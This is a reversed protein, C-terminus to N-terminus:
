LSVLLESFKQISLLDVSAVIRKYSVALFSQVVDYPQILSVSNPLVRLSIRRPQNLAWIWCYNAPLPCASRCEDRWDGTHRWYLWTHYRTGRALNCEYSERRACLGGWFAAQYILTTALIHTSQWTYKELEQSLDLKSSIKGNDLTAFLYETRPLLLYHDVDVGM